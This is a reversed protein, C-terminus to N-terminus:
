LADEIPAMYAQGKDTLLQRRNMQRFLKLGLWEELTKIQQNIAAQIMFLEAAAQTLSLNRAAVEFARLTRM